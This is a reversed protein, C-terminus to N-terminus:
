RGVVLVLSIPVVFHLLYHDVTDSDPCHLINSPVLERYDRNMTASFATNSFVHQAAKDEAIMRQLITHEATSTTKAGTLAIGPIRGGTFISGKRAIMTGVFLTLTDNVATTSGM